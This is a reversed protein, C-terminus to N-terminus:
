QTDPFQHWPIVSVFMICIDILLTCHRCKIGASFAHAARAHYVRLLTLRSAPSGQYMYSLPLRSFPTFLSFPGTGVNLEQVLHTPLGPTNESEQQSKNFFRVCYLQDARQHNKTCLRCFYVGLFHINSFFNLLLYLASM